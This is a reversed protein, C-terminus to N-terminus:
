FSTKSLLKNEIICNITIKNIATEYSLKYQKFRDARISTNNFSFTKDQYNYNGEFVIRLLDDTFSVNLLNRDAFSFGINQKKFYYTYSLGNSIESHVINKEAGTNIWATKMERSIHGGYLMTNLFSKNLGNSEFLFNSTWEITHHNEQEQAFLFLPTCCIVLLKRM